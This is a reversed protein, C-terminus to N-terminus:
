KIILQKTITGTTTKFIIFYLGPSLTSTNVSGTAEQQLVVAGNSNCIKITEVQLRTNYQLYDKAPNPYPIIDNVANIEEVATAKKEQLIELTVENTGLGQATILATRLSTTTQSSVIVGVTASNSGSEPDVSLWSDDCEITWFTNSTITFSLTDATSSCTLQEDSINLYPNTGVQTIVLIEESGDAYNIYVTDIRADTNENANTATVTITGSGSSGEPSLTFWDVDTSATWSTNATVGVYDYSGSDADLGVTNTSLLVMEVQEVQPVVTYAQTISLTLEDDDVLTGNVLWATLEYGFDLDMTISVETGRPYLTREPEVQVYGGDVDEVTLPGAMEWRLHPYDTGDELYWVSTGDPDDSIDWGANEYTERFFLSGATAGTVATLSTNNYDGDEYIGEYSCSDTDYFIASIDINENYISSRTGNGYICAAAGSSASVTGYFLLNELIGENNKILGAATKAEVSGAFFCDRVTSTENNYNVLGAASTEDANILSAYVAVQEITGANEGVLVAHNMEFLECDIIGLVLLNKIVATSATRRFMATNRYKCTKTYDSVSLTISHGGGDFTGYLFDTNNECNCTADTEGIPRTLPETIDETLLFYGDSPYYNNPFYKVFDSFNENSLYITDTEGARLSVTYALLLLLYIRKM